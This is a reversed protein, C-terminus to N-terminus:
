VIVKETDAPAEITQPSVSAARANAGDGRLAAQRSAIHQERVQKSETLLGLAGLVGSFILVIQIMTDLGRKEWILSTLSPEATSSLSGQLPLTMFGLFLSIGLVIAWVLPRPIITQLDQTTEGIISFAFVFLVTVLGAGVSLEIVAVESAGLMYLLISILASTVALWITSTLLKEACMVRYAAYIAALVLILYDM